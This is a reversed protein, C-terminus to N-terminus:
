KLFFKLDRFVGPKIRRDIKRLIDQKMYRLQALWVPDDVEIYLIDDRLRSPRCHNAMTPGAIEAWMPFIKYANIDSALKREKLVSELVQRLSTFAM